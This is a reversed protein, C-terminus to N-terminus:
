RKRVFQLIFERAASLRLRFYLRTVVRCKVQRELDLVITMDSTLSAQQEVPGDGALGQNGDAAGRLGFKPMDGSNPGSAGLEVAGYDAVTDPSSLSLM